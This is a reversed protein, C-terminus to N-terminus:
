LSIEAINVRNLCCSTTPEKGPISSGFAIASMLAIISTNVFVTAM